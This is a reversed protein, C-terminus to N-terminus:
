MKEDERVRGGKWGGKLGVLRVVLLLKRTEGLVVVPLVDTGAGDLGQRVEHHQRPNNPVSHLPKCQALVVNGVLLGYDILRQRLVTM